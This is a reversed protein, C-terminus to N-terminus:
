AVLPPDSAREAGLKLRVLRHLLRPRPVFVLASLQTVIRSCPPLLGTFSPIVAQAIATEGQNDELDLSCHRAANQCIEIPRYSPSFHHTRLAPLLLTVILAALCGAQGCISANLTARQDPHHTDTMSPQPNEAGLRGAFSRTVCSM